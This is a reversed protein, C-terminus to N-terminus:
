ICEGSRCYFKNPCDDDDECVIIGGVWRQYSITVEDDTEPTADGNFVVRNVASDFDFGHARSRAVENAEEGPRAHAVKLTLAVPRGSLRFSSALGLSATAIEELTTSLDSLCVSGATGGTGVVVQHIGMAVEAGTDCTDDPVWYIGFVTADIDARGLYSTYRSVLGQLEAEHAATDPHHMNSEMWDLIDEFSQEHEDTVVVLVVQAGPRIKNATDRTRPMARDIAIAGMSLTFEGGFESMLDVCDSFDGASTLFRDECLVGNGGPLPFGIPFSGACDFDAGEILGRAQPSISTERGVFNCEGGIVGVRWDIDSRTLIEAFTTAFGAVDDRENGMSGSGDISWIFDVQPRNAVVYSVCAAELTAPFRALVTGGTLDAVRWGTALGDDDFMEATTVAGVLVAQDTGRSLIQFAAILGRDGEGTFGGDSEISVSSDGSLEAVLDLRIDDPTRDTPFELILGVTTNFEDHSVTSRGSTRRGVTSEVAEAAAILTGALSDLDSGSGPDLSLAFAAINHDVDDIATGVLGGATFVIDSAVTDPEIALTYDAPESRVIQPERLTEPDCAVYGVEECDEVGDGDTDRENPDTEGEACAVSYAGPTCSGIRGDGNQDEVGDICGDGDSDPELPDTRSRGVEDGDGIGDSDSDPNRPDTGREPEAADTMGDGDSDIRTPDTEDEDVVCNQNADEVGDDLGDGDSDAEVASLGAVSDECENSLGDGDIDDSQSIPVEEDDSDTEVDNGTAVEGRDSTILDGRGRRGNGTDIIDDGSGTPQEDSCGWVLAILVVATLNRMM